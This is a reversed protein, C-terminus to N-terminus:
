SCAQRRCQSREVTGHGPADNRVASGREPGEAPADTVLITGTTTAGDDLRFPHLSGDGRFLRKGGGVVLPDIMLRVRRRPEVGDFSMFENVILKRM